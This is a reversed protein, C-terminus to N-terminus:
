AKPIETLQAKELAKMGAKCGYTLSAYHVVLFLVILGIVPGWFWASEVMEGLDSLAGAWIALSSSIVLYVGVVQLKENRTMVRKTVDVFQAGLTYGLLGVILLTNPTYDLTLSTVLNVIFEIVVTAVAIFIPYKFYQKM